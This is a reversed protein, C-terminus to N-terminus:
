CFSGNFDGLSRYYEGEQWLFWHELAEYNKSQEWLVTKM